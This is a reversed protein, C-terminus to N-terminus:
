RYFLLNLAIINLRIHFFRSILAIFLKLFFCIIRSTFVIISNIMKLKLFTILLSQLFRVINIEDFNFFTSNLGFSLHNILFIKFNTKKLFLYINLKFM